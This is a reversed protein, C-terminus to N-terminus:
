DQPAGRSPIRLVRRSAQTTNKQWTSGLIFTPSPTTIRLGRRVKAAYWVVGDLAIATAPHKPIKPVPPSVFNSSAFSGIETKLTHYESYGTFVLKRSGTKAQEIGVTLGLGSHLMQLGSVLFPDDMFGLGCIVSNGGRKTFAWGECAWLGTLFARVHNRSLRSIACPFRGCFEFRNLLHRADGGTITLDYGSAKPYASVKSNKFCNSLLLNLRHLGGVSSAAARLSQGASQLTGCGVMWGLVEADLLSITDTGTETISRGRNDIRQYSYTLRDTQPFPLCRPAPLTLPLPDLPRDAPSDRDPSYESLAPLDIRGGGLLVITQGISPSSLVGEQCAFRVGAPTWLPHHAYALTCNIM